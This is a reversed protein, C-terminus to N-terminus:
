SIVLWRQRTVNLLRRMFESRPHLTSNSHGPHPTASAEATSSLISQMSFAAVRPAISQAGTRPWSIEVCRVASRVRAESRTALLM